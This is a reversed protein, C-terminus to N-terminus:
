HLANRRVPSLSLKQWLSKEATSLDGFTLERLLVLSDNCFTRVSLQGLQDLVRSFLFRCSRQDGLRRFAAMMQAAADLYHQQAKKDPNKSLELEAIEVANGFCVTARQWQRGAMAECGMSTARLWGAQLESPNDMLWQRHGDCIYKMDPQRWHM